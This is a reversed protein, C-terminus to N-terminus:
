RRYMWAAIKRLWSSQMRKMMWTEAARKSLFGMTPFSHQQFLIKHMRINNQIALAWENIMEGSGEGVICAAYIKGGPSCHIKVFGKGLEEAIAAGYDEHRVKITEYRVGRRKLESERPGVHSFQPETFMTWPVVFSRYDKKLPRPSMANILAIMGQHMAAHSLQAFGNCDGVAYIHKRSTRLFPDVTIGKDTYNVGANELHLDEFAMRRGTASLVRDAVIEGDETTRLIVQRGRQEVRTMTRNPKLDIGEKRFAEQVLAVGDADERWQIASGRMVITVNSGLRAFAQAMECAIAGGGLVLLSAPIGDLDFITENTLVDIRDLGEIPPLAPKTGTCIFIRKASLRRSGVEVTHDDVFGAKGERLILEVKDFMKITKKENIFDLHRHIRPFPDLVDPKPSRSLGYDTLKDFVARVKAMRLLAKSPICGVNMCEGGIRDAEIAAVKLGMEAGMASVAMGAPGMGIVILDYDFAM